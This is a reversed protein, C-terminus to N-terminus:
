LSLKNPNNPPAIAIQLGIPHPHPHSPPLLRNPGPAPPMPLIGALGLLKQVLRTPQAGNSLWHRIRALNLEVRKTKTEKHEVGTPHPNYMGLIEIFKGDRKRRSHTVVIRYVRRNRRGWVQCRLRIPGRAGASLGM